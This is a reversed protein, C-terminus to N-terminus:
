CWLMKKTREESIFDFTNLSYVLLYLHSTKLISKSQDLYSQWNLIKLYKEVIFWGLKDSITSTLCESSYIKDGLICVSNEGPM